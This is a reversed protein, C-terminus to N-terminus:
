GTTALKTQSSIIENTSLDRSPELGLESEEGKAPSCTTLYYMWM